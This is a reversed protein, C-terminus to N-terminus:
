NKNEMMKHLAKYVAKWNKCRVVNSNSYAKNYITGFCICPVVQSALDLNWKSDDILVEVGNAEIVEKKSLTESTYFIQDYVIGAKLLSSEILGRMKEGDKDKKDAYLRSTLIYIKHGEQRLKKLIKVASCYYKINEAYKWNFDKWFEFDQEKSLGYVERLSTATKKNLLFKKGHINKSYRLFDKKSLKFLDTLVGDIDVGIIM